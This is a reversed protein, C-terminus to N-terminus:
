GPPGTKPADSRRSSNSIATRASGCPADREVKAWVCELCPTQRSLLVKLRPLPMRRRLPASGSEDEAEVGETIDGVVIVTPREGVGLRDAIDDFFTDKGVLDPDSKKPIPSCWVSSKGSDAASTTSAAIAARVVRMWRPDATM